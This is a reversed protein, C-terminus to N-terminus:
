GEWGQRCMYVFACTQKLEGLCHMNFSCSPESGRELERDELGECTKLTEASCSNGLTVTFWMDANNAGHVVTQM